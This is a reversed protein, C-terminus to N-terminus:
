EHFTAGYQFLGPDWSAYIGEFAACIDDWRMDLMGLWLPLEIMYRPSGDSCERPDSSSSGNKRKAHVPPNTAPVRSDILTLWRESKTERIDSNPRRHAHSQPSLIPLGSIVKSLEGVVAYAHSPLLKVGEIKLM